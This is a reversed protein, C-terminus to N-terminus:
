KNSHFHDRQEWFSFSLASKWLEMLQRETGPLHRLDNLSNQRHGLLASGNAHRKEISLTKVDTSWKEGLYNQPASRFFAEFLGSFIDREWSGLAMVKHAVHGVPLFNVLLGLHHSFLYAPQLFGRKTWHTKWRTCPDYKFYMFLLLSHQHCSQQLVCLHTTNQFPGLIWDTWDKKKTKDWTPSTVINTFLAATTWPFLKISLSSSARRFDWCMLVIPCNQTLQCSLGLRIRRPGEWRQNRGCRHQSRSRVRFTLSFALVLRSCM